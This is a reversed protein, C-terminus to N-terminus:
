QTERMRSPPPKFGIRRAVEALAQDITGATTTRQFEALEDLWERWESTGRMSFVNPQTGVPNRMTKKKIM